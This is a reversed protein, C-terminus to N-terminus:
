DMNLKKTLIYHSTLYLVIALITVTLFSSEYSSNMNVTMDGYENNMMEYTYRFTAIGQVISAVSMNLFMVGFYALIGM